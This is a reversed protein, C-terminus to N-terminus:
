KRLFTPIDTKKIYIRGSPTNPFREFDIVKDELWRRITRTSKGTLQAAEKVSLYKDRM